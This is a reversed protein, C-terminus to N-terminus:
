FGQFNHFFCYKKHKHNKIVKEKEELSYRQNFYKRLAEPAILDFTSQQFNSWDAKLSATLYNNFHYERKKISRQWAAAM